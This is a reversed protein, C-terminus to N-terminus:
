TRVRESSGGRLKRCTPWNGRPLTSGGSSKWSRMPAPWSTSTPGTSGSELLAGVATELADRADFVGTVERVKIREEM